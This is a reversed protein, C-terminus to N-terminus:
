PSPMSYPKLNRIPSNVIPIISITSIRESFPFFTVINQIKNKTKRKAVINRPKLNGIPMSSNQDVPLQRFPTPSIAIPDPVNNNASSSNIIARNAIETMMEKRFDRFSVSLSYCLIRRKCFGASKEIRLRVM